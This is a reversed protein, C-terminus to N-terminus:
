LTEIDLISNEDWSADLTRCLEYASDKDSMILKVGAQPGTRLVINWAISGDSLLCETCNIAQYVKHIAMTDDEFLAAAGSSSCRGLLAAGASPKNTPKNTRDNNM